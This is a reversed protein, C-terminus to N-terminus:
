AMTLLAKAGGACAWGRRRGGSASRRSPMSACRPGAGARRSAPARRRAGGHSAAAGARCAVELRQLLRHRLEARVRRAHRERVRAVGHVVGVELHPTGARRPPGKWLRLGTVSRAVMVAGAWGAQGLRAHKCHPATGPLRGPQRRVSRWKARGCLHPVTTSCRLHGWIAEPLCVLAMKRDECVTAAAASRRM